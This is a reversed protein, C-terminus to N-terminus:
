AALRIIIYGGGLYLNGEATEVTNDFSEVAVVTELPGPERAPALGHTRHAARITAGILRHSTTTRM